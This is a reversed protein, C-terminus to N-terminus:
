LILEEQTLSFYLNQLQHVYKVHYIDNYYHNNNFLLTRKDKLNIELYVSRKRTKIKMFNDDSEKFGLKILWEETIPIPIYYNSVNFNGDEKEISASSFFRRGVTIIKSPEIMNSFELLNGIRLESAQIM